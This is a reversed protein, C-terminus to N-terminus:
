EPVEEFIFRDLETLCRSLAAAQRPTLQQAPQPVPKSPEPKAPPMLDRARRLRPISRLRPDVGDARAEIVGVPEESHLDDNEAHRMEHRYSKRQGQWGHRANIYINLFGDKSERIIGGVEAPLDIVRITYEDNDIM